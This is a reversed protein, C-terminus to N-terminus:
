IYNRLIEALQNIYKMDEEIRGMFDLPISIVGRKIEGNLMKHGKNWITIVPKQDSGEFVFEINDYGNDIVDPIKGYKIVKKNTIIKLLEPITKPSIYVSLELFDIADLREKSIIKIDEDSEKEIIYYFSNEM